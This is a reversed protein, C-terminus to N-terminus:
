PQQNASCYKKLATIAPKYNKNASAKFYKCASKVDQSELYLEGMSYLFVPDNPSLMLANKMYYIAKALSDQRKYVVSLNYYTVPDTQYTLSKKFYVIASDLKNLSLYALGLNSYAAFLEPNRKLAKKFLSLAKEYKGQKGYYAGMNVLARANLSDLDLVRLYDYKAKETQGLLDYIIGRQLFADTFDLKIAVAKDANHLAQYLYASDQTILFTEYQAASLNYYANAYDPKGSIAQNYAAIAQEFYKKALQIKASDKANKAKNTYVTGLNNWAVVAKPSKKVTDTWLTLSNKWTQVRYFTLVSLLTAYLGLILYKYTKSPIKDLYYALALFFGFSPVYAYRDAYVASGVPILQLLLFINIIFFALGFAPLYQRRKEWRYILFVVFAPVVILAYYYLPITSNIIDPYPYIASLHVPLFLKLIYMTFGYAAIGIRKYLAYPQQEVLAFSYKQAQIAILGFFLALLLFPIKEIVLKATFRRKKLWDVLFISVAFSVAQGKSLLSLVFVILALLYYVTKQTEDYKVYLLFAAFYFFTYLVDKREAIWAVSEVHLTHVGFLLAAAFAIFGNGAIRLTILYILVTSLLHLLINTLIFVWAVPKGDQQYINYSIALSLMTLPHYNGMWYREHLDGSLFMRKINEGSLNKILPNHQVYAQDDWNTFDNKLAPSFVTFTIALIIIIHWLVPKAAKVAPKARVPEEQKTEQFKRKKRHVISANM